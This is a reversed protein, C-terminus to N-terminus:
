LLARGARGMDIRRPMHVYKKVRKKTCGKTVERLLAEKKM